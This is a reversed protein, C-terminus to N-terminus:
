QNDPPLTHGDEEELRSKRQEIWRTWLELATWVAHAALHVNKSELAQCILRHNKQTSEADPGQAQGSVYNQRISPSLLDLTVGYIEQILRNQTAKGLIQHFAIDLQHLKEANEPSQRICDEFQDVNKRLADMEEPTIHVMATELVAMEIHERFTLLEEMTTNSLLMKFLFADTFTIEDPSSIYTGDGRRITLLHNAALAKLGERVSTRSVGLEQCLEDETPIRDGPLLDRSFLRQKIYHTVKEVPTLQDGQINGEQYFDQLMLFNYIEMHRLSWLRLVEKSPEEQEDEKSRASM